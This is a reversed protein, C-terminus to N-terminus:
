LEGERVQEILRKIQYFFSRLKEFDEWNYYDDWSTWARFKEEELSSELDKGWCEAYFTIRQLTSRIETKDENEVYEFKAVCFSPNGNVRTSYMQTITIPESGWKDLFDCINSIDEYDLTVRYTSFLDAMTFYELEPVGDRISCYLLDRDSHLVPFRMEEKPRMM